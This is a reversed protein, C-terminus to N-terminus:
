EIEKIRLTNGQLDIIQQKLDDIERDKRTVELQMEKLVARLKTDTIKQASHLKDPPIHLLLDSLDHTGLHVRAPNGNHDTDYTYVEVITRAQRIKKLLDRDM